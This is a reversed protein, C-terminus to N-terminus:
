NKEYVQGAALLAQFDESPMPRGFLYGQGEQCGKEALFAAQDPEEIGEAVLKLNLSHGLSIIANAVVSADQNELIDTVFSRDIKIKTLPLRRLYALSSYGTGFDDIAVGVGLKKLSALMEVIIDM